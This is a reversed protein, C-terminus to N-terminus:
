ELILFREDVTPHLMRTSFDYRFYSIRQETSPINRDVYRNMLFDFLYGSYRSGAASAMTYIDNLDISDVSYTYVMGGTFPFFRLRGDFQDSMFMEGFAVSKEPNEENIGSIEFWSSLVVKNLYFDGIYDYEIDYEPDFLREVTEELMLQAVNVIYKDGPISLFVDTDPQLYVGLGKSRLGDILRNMYSELFVSDSVHQMFLSRYYLVSDLTTDDMWGEDAVEYAKLNRKYLFDAPLLLLSTNQREQFFQKALKREVTCGTLLMLGTLILLFIELISSNIRKMKLINLCNGALIKEM